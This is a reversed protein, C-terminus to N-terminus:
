IRQQLLMSSNLSKAVSESLGWECQGHFGVVSLSFWGQVVSSGFCVRVQVHKGFALSAYNICIDVYM